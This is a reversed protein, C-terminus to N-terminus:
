IVEDRVMAAIRDPDLGLLEGYVADNDAGIPRSAEVPRLESGHWRIPSHPLPIEGLEPHDAWQLAGRQHQDPDRVVEDVTRM